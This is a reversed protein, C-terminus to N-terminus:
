VRYCFCYYVFKEMLKGINRLRRVFLCFMYSIKVLLCKIIIFYCIYRFWFYLFGIYLVGVKERRKGYYDFFGCRWIICSCFLLVETM